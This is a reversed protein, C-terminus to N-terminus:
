GSTLLLASGPAVLAEARARIGDLEARLDDIRRLATEVAGRRERLATAGAGAPESLLAGVGSLQAELHAGVRGAVSEVAGDWEKRLAGGPSTDLAALAGSRYRTLGAQLAERHEDRVFRWILLATSTGFVGGVALAAIPNMGLAAVLIATGGGGAVKGGLAGAGGAAGWKAIRELTGPEMQGLQALLLGSGGVILRDAPEADALLPVQEYVGALAADAHASYYGLVARLADGYAQDLQDREHLIETQLRGKWADAQRGSVRGSSENLEALSRDIATTISDRAHDAAAKLSPWQQAAVAAAVNAGSVSRWADAARGRAAKFEGALRKAAGKDGDGLAGLARAGLDLRAYLAHLATTADDAARDIVEAVGNERIYRWLHRQFRAVEEEHAASALPAAGHVRENYFSALNILFVREAPIGLEESAAQRTEELKARLESEPLLQLGNTAFYGLEQNVVVAQVLDRQVALDNFVEHLAGYGTRGYTVAVVAHTEEALFRRAEQNVLPSSAHVGPMDVLRLGRRLAPHDYRVIGRIVGRENERNEHQLLYGRFEALDACRHSRESGDEARLTVLYVPEKSEGAEAYTPAVTGPHDRERPTLDAGAIANILTSKGVGEAGIVTLNLRGLDVSRRAAEFLPRVQAANPGLAAGSQEARRLLDLVDARLTAFEELVGEAGANLPPATGTIPEVPAPM